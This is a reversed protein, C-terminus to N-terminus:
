FKYGVGVTYLSSDNSVTNNDSGLRLFREAEARVSFNSNFDYKLGVGFSPSSTNDSVGTSNLTERMRNEGLRGLLSVGNGVPLAGLLSIGYGSLTISSVGSSLNYDGLHLYTIETGFYKNIQYGGFVKYASTSNDIGIGPVAGATDWNPRNQGASGGLYFGNDAAIAAGCTLFGVVFFAATIRTQALM